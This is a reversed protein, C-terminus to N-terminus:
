RPGVVGARASPIVGRMAEIAVSHESRCSCVIVNSQRYMLLDQLFCLLFLFFFLFVVTCHFNSEQEVDCAKEQANGSLLIGLSSIM